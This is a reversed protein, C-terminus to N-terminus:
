VDQLFPVEFYSGEAGGILVRHKGVNQTTFQGRLTPFEALYMPHGSIKCVLSEGDEFNMGGPWISTEIKIKTGPTIKEETTHSHQIYHPTSLERDIARHSARIQGHPGLYVTANILPVKDQTVGQAEMEKAPVNYSRLLNGAADAKRVQLFIDMDDHDNCSMFLVARVSGLLATRKHFTMKFLLEDPDNDIQQAITDAQYEAFSETSPSGNM